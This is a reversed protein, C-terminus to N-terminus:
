LTALRTNSPIAFSRYRFVLLVSDPFCPLSNGPSCLLLSPVIVLIAFYGEVPSPTLLSGGAVSARWSLLDLLSIVSSGSRRM